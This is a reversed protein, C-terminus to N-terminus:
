VLLTLFVILLLFLATISLQLLHKTLLEVSYKKLVFAFPINNIIAFNFCM